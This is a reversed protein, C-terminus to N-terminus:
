LCSCSDGLQCKKNIKNIFHSKVKFYYTMVEEYGSKSRAIRKKQLDKYILDERKIHKTTWKM